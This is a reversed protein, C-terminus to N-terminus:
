ISGEDQVSRVLAAFDKKVWELYGKWAAMEVSGDTAASPFNKDLEITTRIVAANAENLREIEQKVATDKAKQGLVIKFKEALGSM